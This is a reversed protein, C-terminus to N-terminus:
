FEEALSLIKEVHEKGFPKILYEKVELFKKAKEQDLKQDSSTFMSIIASKKLDQSLKSYRELFQFGDMRPMNIDLLIIKPPFNNNFKEKSQEFSLFHDIAEQGDCFSYIVKALNFKKSIRKVQYIDIENDDIVCLSEIM